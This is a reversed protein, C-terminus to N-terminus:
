KVEREPGRGVQNENAENGGPTYRNHAQMWSVLVRNDLTDSCDMAQMSGDQQYLRYHIRGGRIDLRAKKLLENRYSEPADSPICDPGVEGGDPPLIPGGGSGSTGLCSAAVEARKAAV